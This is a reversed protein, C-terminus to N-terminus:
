HLLHPDFGWSLSGDSGMKQQTTYYSVQYKYEIDPRGLELFVLISLILTIIPLSYAFGSFVSVIGIIALISEIIVRIWGMLKFRDHWKEPIGAVVLKFGERRVAIGNLLFVLM